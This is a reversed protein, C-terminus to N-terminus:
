EITYNRMYEDKYKNAPSIERNLYKDMLLGAIPTAVQAGWGANEVFVAIAIKPNNRPAFGFFVSHDKGHPNQSTGTKGCVQQGEIYANRGTGATIAAEMGTIVWDFHRDDIGTLHKVKYKDDITEGNSFGKVLHPTYFYGRNAIAAALNAMQVTTLEIEGQGIGLSLIYTSRWGNIEKKYIRDYYKSTPLNGKNEYFVDLGLKDGLGFRGLAANLTDLGIGPKSYGYHDIFDRLGQYYYSNCSHQIAISVNYPTPHNHCKQVYNGKSDVKYEGNCYMPKTPNLIGKQLSILSFVTKFISGPPYKSMVPRDLLPRRLTDSLLSDIAKSRDRDLNLMNPDFSPASVMALIEGTQPEIAVIAGQKNKMLEEAYIQLELDIGTILDYGSVASSDLKGEDFSGVDRGLFDKLLYKVGKKGKLEKEYTKELGSTGIYDGNAYLGNSEKIQTKDVESLYGLIHAANKNPYARNNRIVPDFGPFKFLHEQFSNFTESKIKSMFTFPVAKHFQAKRWDKNLMENFDKKDIELLNCFATTDMKPDVKKYTAKLDYIPNNHVLLKENRDFILGRSPFVVRKDLTTRQAQEKYKSQFIQLQAIKLILIL